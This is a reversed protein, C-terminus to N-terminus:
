VFYLADFNEIFVNTQSVGNVNRSIYYFGYEKAASKMARVFSQVSLPRSLGNFEMFTLYLHYLFEKPKRQININGGMFLGHPQDMFNLKGCFELIPDTSRKVQLASESKRQEILLQKAKAPNSFILLLYHIVFPIEYAIKDVLLDDRESEPVVRDFSFIVRRRAIGGNRETFIMPENNTIVVVARLVTSFQKEYKQDIEILDGGTIAKIGSGDGTYKPQDPLLILKKGVFQARGKPNDLSSMSASAVNNLGGALLILIQSFVSKGSGGEGTIELFFQWDYRNALIMYLGAMIRNMTNEDSNSVFDIWRSFYPASIELSIFEESFLYNINNHTLLGDVSSHKRFSKNRIDYVGNLFSIVNTNNKPLPLLMMKIMSLMSNITRDSFDCSKEQFIDIIERKIKRDGLENWIVGDYRYLKETSENIALNGFRSVLYEAKKNLSLISLDVGDSKNVNIGLAGVIEIYKELVDDDVLGDDIYVVADPHSKSKIFASLMYLQQKDIEGCIDINIIKTDKGSLVVSDNWASTDNLIRNAVVLPEYIKGDLVRLPDNIMADIITDDGTEYAESYKEATKWADPGVLILVSEKDSLSSFNSPKFSKKSMYIEKM